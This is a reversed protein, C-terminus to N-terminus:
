EEVSFTLYPDGPLKELGLGFVVFSARLLHSEQLAGFATQLGVAEPSLSSLFERIATTPAAQLERECRVLFYM